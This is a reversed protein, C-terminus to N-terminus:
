TKIYSRDDNNHFFTRDTALNLTSLFLKETKVTCNKVKTLTIVLRISYCYEGMAFSNAILLASHLLKTLIQTFLQVIYLTTNFLLRCVKKRFSGLYNVKEPIVLEM